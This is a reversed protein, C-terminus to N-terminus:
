RKNVKINNIVVVAIENEDEEEHHMGTEVLIPSTKGLM